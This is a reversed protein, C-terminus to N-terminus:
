ASMEMLIKRVVGVLYISGSVVITPRDGHAAAAVAEEISASLQTRVGLRQAAGELDAIPTARPSRIPALYIPDFLPFLLRAMEDLPKDRLCSFLLAAPHDYRLITRVGMALSKAGAPNHAVDLIWERGAVVIRELRGPWQTKRIGQEVAPAQISAFEPRRALEEATALALALNRHQHEGHLPSEVHVAVSQFPVTYRDPSDSPPLFRTPNLERVSLTCAAEDLVRDIEPEQPLRALVGGQRLIGSKERAIAGLTAGLWEMHDFSIDTVVSVLPEVVNTADLRGGMGVELVAIEVRADAFYCFAMATLVEFFSPMQPLSGTSVLQRAAAQVRFFYEGFDEEGILESGIRIRENVRTLHPSTYLGVRLTAEQLISALTSATSGKGNTGAILVSPFKTHPSGLAELLLRFEVLSFKRRPANGQVYLEPVMANLQELAALYSM